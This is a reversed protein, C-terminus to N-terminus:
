APDQYFVLYALRKSSAEAMLPKLKEPVDFDNDLSLGFEWIREEGNQMHQISANDEIWKWEPVLRWDEYPGVIDCMKVFGIQAMAYPAILEVPQGPSAVSAPTAPAATIATDQGLKRATEVLDMLTCHSDLHGETPRDCERYQTGDGKTYDWVNLGAVQEIFRAGEGHSDVMRAIDNALGSLEGLAVTMPADFASLEQAELAVIRQAASKISAAKSQDIRKNDCPPIDAGGALKAKCELRLTLSKELLDGLKPESGDLDEARIERLYADLEHVMFLLEHSSTALLTNTINM